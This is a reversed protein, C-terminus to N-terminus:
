GLAVVVLGWGVFDDFFVAGVVVFGEGEAYEDAIAAETEAGAVAFLFGLGEGGGFGDFLVM